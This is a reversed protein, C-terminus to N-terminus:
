LSLESVQINYPVMLEIMFIKKIFPPHKMDINIDIITYSHVTVLHTVAM